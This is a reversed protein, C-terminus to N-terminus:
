KYEFGKQLMCTSIALDRIDKVEDITQPKIKIITQWFEEDLRGSCEILSAKRKEDESAIKTSPKNNLISVQTELSEVKPRLKYFYFYIFAINILLSATLILYIFLRLNNNKKM